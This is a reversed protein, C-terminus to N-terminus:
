LMRRRIPAAFFGQWSASLDVFGPDAFFEAIRGADGPEFLLINETVYPTPEPPSDGKAVSLTVARRSSFHVGVRHRQAIEQLRERPARTADAGEGQHFHLVAYRTAKEWSQTRAGLLQEGGIRRHLVFSFRRVALTRLLGIIQFVRDAMLDLFREGSPYNVILLYRRGLDSDGAFPEGTEGKFFVKAGIRFARSAALYNYLHYIPAVRTDFWNIAFLPEELATQEGELVVRVSGIIPRDISAASTPQSDPTVTVTTFRKVTQPM